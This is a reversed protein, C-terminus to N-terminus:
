IAVAAVAQGVVYAGPDLPQYWMDHKMQGTTNSGTTNIYVEGQPLIFEVTGATSISAGANNKVAAGGTGIGVVMGGVELSALNVTSCLATGTGIVASANDLAKSALSYGPDTATLVVTCTGLLKHVLVRGGFVRFIIDTTSQPLVRAPQTVQIWQNITSQGGESTGAVRGRPVNKLLFAM